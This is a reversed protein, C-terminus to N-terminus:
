AVFGNKAATQMNFVTIREIADIYTENGLSQGGYLAIIEQPAMGYRSKLFVVQEEALEKIRADTEALSNKRTLVDDM